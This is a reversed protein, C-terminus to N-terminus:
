DRQRRRWAALAPAYHGELERVRRLEALRIEAVAAAGIPRWWAPERIEDVCFGADPHYACPCTLPPLGARGPAYVEIWTGDTPATTIPQWPPGDTPPADLDDM